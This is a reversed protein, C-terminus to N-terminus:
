LRKNCRGVYVLKTVPCSKLRAALPGSLRPNLGQPTTGRCTRWVHFAGKCFFLSAFVGSEKKTLKNSDVALTRGGNGLSRRPAGL